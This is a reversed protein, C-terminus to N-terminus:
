TTTRTETEGQGEGGGTILSMAEGLFTLYDAFSIGTDLLRERDEPAMLLDMVQLANQVSDGDRGLVALARIVTAAGSRIPYEQGNVALSYQQPQGIKASIDIINAM